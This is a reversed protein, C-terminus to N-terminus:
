SLRVQRRTRGSRASIPRPAVGELLVKSRAASGAPQIHSTMPHAVGVPEFSGGYPRVEDGWHSTANVSTSSWSDTQVQLTAGSLELDITVPESCIVTTM